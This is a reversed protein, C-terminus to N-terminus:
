STAQILWLHKALEKSNYVHVYKHLTSYIQGLIQPLQLTFCHVWMCHKSKLLEELYPHKYFQNDLYCLKVAFYIVEPFTNQWLASKVLQCNDFLYVPFPNGCGPGWLLYDLFNRTMMHIVLLATKKPILWSNKYKIRNWLVSTKILFQTSNPYLIDKDFTLVGKGVLLLWKM